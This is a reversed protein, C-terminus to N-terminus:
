MEYLSSICYLSKSITNTPRIRQFKIGSKILEETLVDALKHTRYFVAIDRYSYNRQRILKRIIKVIARAEDIPTTFTYHFIERGADKHTVLSHQTQRTPNNAIVEEATRLIRQSCRYHDDLEVTYPAYNIKFHEIFLPNSGRWSYISQDADAVVMLNNDPPATLLRLLQYQVKNVDHYEDVLIHSIKHHYEQQVEAAQELLTVTKILLDDFDFATYETLKRQYTNYANVLNAEANPDNIKYIYNRDIQPNNQAYDLRCKADSIANRLLWIPYDSPLLNLEKTVENLLEGQIEQDFIAFNESLGIHHAHKRLAKACFAHFTSVNINSGHPEGVETNVRDRMEQAAKNTFTIALINEPKIRHHRILYAIRHTIVKTKGTGPGAIVLIPGKNHKVAEIQKTNLDHLINM